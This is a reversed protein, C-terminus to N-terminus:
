MVPFLLRWNFSYNFSARQKRKTLTFYWTEGTAELKVVCVGDPEDSADRYVRTVIDFHLKGYGKVPRASFGLGSRGRTKRESARANSLTRGYCRPPSFDSVFDISERM